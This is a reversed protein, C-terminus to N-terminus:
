RLQTALSADIREIVGFLERRQDSVARELSRLGTTAEALEDDTLM